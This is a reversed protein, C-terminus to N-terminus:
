KELGVGNELFKRIDVVAEFLQLIFDLRSLILRQGGVLFGMM